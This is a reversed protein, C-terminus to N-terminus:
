HYETERSVLTTSRRRRPNAQINDLVILFLVNRSLAPIPMSQVVNLVCQVDTSTNQKKALVEVLKTLVAILSDLKANIM